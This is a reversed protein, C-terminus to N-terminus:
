PNRYLSHTQIYDLVDDPLLYRASLGNALLKTHQSALGNRVATPLDAPDQAPSNQRAPEPASPRASSAGAITTGPHRSAGSTSGPRRRPRRRVPGSPRDPGGVLIAATLTMGIALGTMVGGKGAVATHLITTVLFFTLLAELITAYAPYNTLVGVTAGAQITGGLNNAVMHLFGAASIAAVFQALWYFVVETWKVAGQLALGLTVAPNFHAGSVNGFSYVFVAVTFGHALAVGVLGASSAGAGAGIFVLAFTGIFEAAFVKWNFM